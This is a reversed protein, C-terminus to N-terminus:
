FLDLPSKVGMINKRAVHTYIMTTQVSKHGLLEQVTRIDYGNELLHTAFSHRLSHVTASKPIGAKRVAIKFARQLTGTHVHHRRVVKSVPDVSLSRSPFLWFWGWEKGANPYKKELAGPLWVGPINNKRDEDYLVKISDMHALLDDKLNEPFITIRDRDGKGSRVVVTNKELDIDKVRLRTCESVRLGSGYILMAMLKHVGNLVAFIRNVEKRTLVVPLRIKERARVADLSGELDEKLVHRFFFVLANLAQNQTSASVKQDVALYTLFGQVDSGDLTEPDRDRLYSRFRRLWKLYAQETRYARHKLRLVKRTERALNEWKDPTSGCRHDHQNSIFYTYLKLAYDAQKVQWDEYRISLNRLWDKKEDGNITEILDKELFNYCGIVWRIYYPISKEKINRQRLFHRFRSVISEDMRRM